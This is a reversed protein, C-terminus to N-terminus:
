LRGTWTRMYLCGFSGRITHIPRGSCYGLAQRRGEGEPDSRLMVPFDFGHRYLVFGGEGYEAVARGDKRAM